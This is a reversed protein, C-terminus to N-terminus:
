CGQDFAIAFATFDDTDVFGSNDFDATDDGAEFREIFWGYDDLDVFGSGDVDAPRYALTVSSGTTEVSLKGVPMVPLDHWAFVGKVGDTTGSIFTYSECPALTYGNQFRVRLTGGLWIRSGNLQYLDRQSAATGGLDVAITGLAGQAIDSITMTGYPSGASITGDNIFNNGYRGVSGVGEITHGHAHYVFQRSNTEISGGQLRIAGDGEIYIPYILNDKTTYLDAGVLRLLGDNRLTGLAYCTQEINITADMTVDRLEVTSAFRFEGGNVSELRGGSIYISERTTIRSGGDVRVIGDPTQEINQHVETGATPGCLFLGDNIFVADRNNVQTGYLRMLVGNGARILGHNTVGSISTVTSSTLNEITGHNILRATPTNGWVFAFSRIIQDPGITSTGNFLLGATGNDSQSIGSGNLQANTLILRSVSNQSALPLMRLLGDHGIAGELTLSASNASASGVAIDSMLSVHAFRGGDIIAGDHQEVHGGVITSQAHMRSTAGRISVIGDDEQNLQNLLLTGGVAQVLERNVGAVSLVQGPIDASITSENVVGQIVGTGFLEQPSQLTVSAGALARIISNSGQDLRISGPGALLANQTFELLTSNGTGTPAHLTLAAANWFGKSAFSVLTHGSADGFTMNAFPNTLSLGDITITSAAPVEVAFPTNGGVIAHQSYANPVVAPSWNGPVFWSGGAPNAWEITTQALGHSSALGSVSVLVSICLGHRASHIQNGLM